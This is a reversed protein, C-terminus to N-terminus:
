LQISIPQNLFKTKDIRGKNDNYAFLFVRLIRIGTQPASNNTLAWSVSGEDLGVSFKELLACRHRSM